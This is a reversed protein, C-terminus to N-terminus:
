VWEIGISALISSALSQARESDSEALRRILCRISEAGQIVIEGNREMVWFVAELHSDIGENIAKAVEIGDAFNLGMEFTDPLLELPPLEGWTLSLM